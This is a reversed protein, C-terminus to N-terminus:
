EDDWSRRRMRRGSDYSHELIGLVEEEYSKPSRVVEFGLELTNNQIYVINSDGSGHGFRMLNEDGVTMETEAIPKDHEDVLVGDGEFYTLTVQQYDQSNQRWETLSVVFPLAPDDSRKLDEEDQDWAEAVDPTSAFINVKEGKEILVVQEDSLVGDSKLDEVTPEEATGYKLSDILEAAAAAEAPAAAEAEAIEDGILAVAAKSPDSLHDKKHLVSYYKKAEAIEKEALIEYKQKLLYNSAFYGGAAGVLLSGGAIMWARM